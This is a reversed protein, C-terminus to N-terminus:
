VHREEIQSRACAARANRVSYRLSTAPPRAATIPLTLRTVMALKVSGSGFAM